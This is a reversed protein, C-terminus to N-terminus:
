YNEGVKTTESFGNVKTKIKDYSSHNYKIEDYTNTEDTGCWRTRIDPGDFGGVGCM